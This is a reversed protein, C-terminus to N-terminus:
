KRVYNPKVGQVVILVIHFTLPLTCEPIFHLGGGSSDIFSIPVYGTGGPLESHVFRPRV